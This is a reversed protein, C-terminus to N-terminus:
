PYYGLADLLGMLSRNFGFNQEYYRSARRGIENALVPSARLAIFWNVCAGVYRSEELVFGLDNQLIQRGIESQRPGLFLIPRGAMLYTYFKSPLLDGVSESSQALVLVSCESLTPVVLSREVFDSFVVRTEGLQLFAQQIESVRPGSGRFTYRLDDFYKLQNVVEYLLDFQHAIGANGSYGVVFDGSRPAKVGSFDGWNQILSLERPPGYVRLLKEKMDQGIVIVHDM